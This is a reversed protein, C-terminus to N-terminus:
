SNLLQYTNPSLDDDTSEGGGFANAAPPCDRLDREVEAVRDQLPAQSNM